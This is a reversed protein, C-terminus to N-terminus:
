KTHKENGRGTRFRVQLDRSRKCSEFPMRTNSARVMILATEHQNKGCVPDAWIITNNATFEGTLKMGLYKIKM